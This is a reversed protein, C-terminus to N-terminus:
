DIILSITGWLDPAQFQLPFGRPSKGIMEFALELKLVMTQIIDEQALLEHEFYDSVVTLCIGRAVLGNELDTIDSRMREPDLPGMEDEKELNVLISPLFPSFSSAFENERKFNVSSLVKTQKAPTTYLDATGKAQLGAKVLDQTAAEKGGEAISFM